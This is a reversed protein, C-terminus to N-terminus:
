KLDGDLQERLVRVAPDRQLAISYRRRFNRLVDNSATEGFESLLERMDALLQELLEANAPPKRAALAEDVQVILTTIPQLWAFWPDTILLQLFTSPSGIPGHSLEYSTRESDLLAKHLALATNRVQQLRQRIDQQAVPPSSM